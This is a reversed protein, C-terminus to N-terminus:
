TSTPVRCPYRSAMRSSAASDLLQAATTARLDRAVIDIVEDWAGPRPQRILRMTPYWPTDSRDQMWRWDADHPLLTWVPVGLSGALHASCTDVSIILDMRSMVEAEAVINEIHPVRGFCHAWERLAPGRQLLHWSIDRLEGLTGLLGCPISRRSDWEGATWVLGVNLPSAHSAHRGVPLRARNVHLSSAGATLMSETIRFVHMLESLEVDVDFQVDPTGDHLPLLRDEWGFAKFLPILVPQMWITVEPSMRSVLPVFRAFQITDGLGHYCRILVRRDQLPGGRWIFQEHRPWSSCDLGARLELARDSALWAEQFRGARMLKLWANNLQDLEARLGASL